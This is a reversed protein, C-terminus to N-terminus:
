AHAGRLPTAADVGVPPRTGAPPVVRTSPAQVPQHQRAVRVFQPMDFRGGADALEPTWGPDQALFSHSDGLLLGVFVEAVIRGGVPGLRVPIANAAEATLERAQALWAHQAEALIYTWLPAAGRFSEGYHTIPRNADDRVADNWTAKGIRIDEDALPRLGMARAVTQGSPLGMRQGRLLNRRALNPVVDTGPKPTPRGEKDAILSRGDPAFSCFEPLFGLPNALSTDLKYAPQVRRSGRTRTDEPTLQSSVEFFLDWDIAWNPPFPGFGALSRDSVGAFIFQRGARGLEVDHASAATSGTGLSTNLRYIPRVASHGFRYAAVSFEVPIFPAEAPQYFHLRPPDDYISRGSALHPLVAELQERGVLRALFDHLVVWQYHWRVLRQLEAFPARPHLEAVRNHFRLFLGQLQSVIVNEDNRKDGILARGHFRPLDHVDSRRDGETMPAGFLFLRGADDYMYPQDDPGRGYVCDLDFRPTRYDTLGDPDDQRVLSSEPDFTLDHDIFQGLYTYGAPIGFNEEDDVEGEPTAKADIFGYADRPFRGDPGRDAEPEATMADALQSLQDEDFEAAPLTRFMRGFRGEFQPSRRPLDSGRIGGGHQPGRKAEAPPLRHHESM